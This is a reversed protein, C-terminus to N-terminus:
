LYKAKHVACRLERTLSNPFAYSIGVIFDPYKDSPYEKPSVYNLNPFRIPRPSRVVRGYVYRQDGTQKELGKLYVKVNVFTDDIHHIVYKPEPCFELLWDLMAVAKNNLNHYTDMKNKMFIDKKENYEIKLKAVVTQNESIGGIFLLKCNYLQCQKGITDRIATRREFNQAASYVTVIAAMNSGCYSRFHSTEYEDDSVLAPKGIGEYPYFSPTTESQITRNIDMCMRKLRDSEILGRFPPSFNFNTTTEPKLNHMYRPKFLTQIHKLRSPSLYLSSLIYVICVLVIVSPGFICM